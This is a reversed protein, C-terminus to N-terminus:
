RGENIEDLKQKREEKLPTFYEYFYPDVVSDIYDEVYGYTSEKLKFRFKMYKLKISIYDNESFISHIGKVKYHKGKKFYGYNYKCLVRDGKKM